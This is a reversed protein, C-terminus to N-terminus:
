IGVLGWREIGSSHQHSLTQMQADERVQCLAMKGSSRRRGQFVTADRTQTHMPSPTFIKPLVTGKKTALAKFKLIRSFKHRQWTKQTRTADKADANRRKCERREQERRKWFFLKSISLESDHELISNWRLQILLKCHHPGKLTRLYYTLVTFTLSATWGLATDVVPVQKRLKNNRFM